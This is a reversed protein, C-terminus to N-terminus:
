EKSNPKWVLISYLIPVVIALLFQIITNPLLGQPFASTIILYIFMVALSVLALSNIFILGWKQKPSFGLYALILVPFLGCVGSVYTQSLAYSGPAFGVFQMYQNAFFIHSIPWGIFLLVSFVFMLLSFIKEKKVSVNSINTM